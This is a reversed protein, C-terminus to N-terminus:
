PRTLRGSMDRLTFTNRSRNRKLAPFPHTAYFTQNAVAAFESARLRKAETDYLFTFLPMQRENLVPIVRYTAFKGTQQYPKVQM